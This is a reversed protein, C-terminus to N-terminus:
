VIEPRILSELKDVLKYFDQHRESRPRSLSVKVEERIMGPRNSFVLIRDAMLVAESPLHTVMVITKHTDRWIRLLDERLAEATFSDLASFAEDLLLIDPDIALARAFGVRQKQGGSLEKPHSNDLGNLGLREIEQAVIKNIKAPHINAMKLGYGINERVTLWPMLGFNQFVFGVKSPRNIVHGATPRILGALIRLLTSKGCGSPGMLALLEGPRVDFSIDRLIPTLVDDELYGKSIHEAGFLPSM